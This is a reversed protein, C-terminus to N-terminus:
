NGVPRFEAGEERDEDEILTTLASRLSAMDTRSLAAFLRNEM